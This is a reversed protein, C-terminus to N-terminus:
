DCVRRIEEEGSRSSWCYGAPINNMLQVARCARQGVEVLSGIVTPPKVRLADELWVRARRMAFFWWGHGVVGVADALRWGDCMVVGGVRRRVLALALVALRIRLCGHAQRLGLAVNVLDDLLVGISVTHALSVSQCEVLCSVSGENRCCENLSDYEVPGACLFCLCDWAASSLFLVIAFLSWPPV